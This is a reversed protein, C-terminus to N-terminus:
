MVKCDKEGKKDKRKYLGRMKANVTPAALAVDPAVLVTDPLPPLPLEPTDDHRRMKSVTTGVATNITSISLRMLLGRAAANHLLLESPPSSAVTSPSERTAASHLSGISGMSNVRHLQRQGALQHVHPDLGFYMLSNALYSYVAIWLQEMELTFHDFGVREECTQVFAQGMLQFHPREVSLIRLHRKGLNMLYSDLQLMDELHGLAFSLVGAFLVAQHKILPFIVELDPLLTLLNLYMQDIFQLKAFLQQGMGPLKRALEHDVDSGEDTLLEIWLARLLEVEKPTLDLTPKPVSAVAASM